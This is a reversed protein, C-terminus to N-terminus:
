RARAGMIESIEGHVLDRLLQRPRHLRDPFQLAMLAMQEIPVVNLGQRGQLRAVNGGHVAAVQKAGQPRQILPKLREHLRRQQVAFGKRTQPVGSFDQSLDDAFLLDGTQISM